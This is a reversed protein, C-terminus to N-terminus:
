WKTKNLNILINTYYKDHNFITIINQFKNKFYKKDKFLETYFRINFIRLINKLRNERCMIVTM